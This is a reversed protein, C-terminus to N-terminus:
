INGEYTPRFAYHLMAEILETQAKNSKVYVNIRHLNNLMWEKVNSESVGQLVFRKDKCLSKALTSPASFGYHQSVFRATSKKNVKGIKLFECEKDKIYAFIYIASYGEPLKSPQKHPCGLDEIYYDDIREGLNRAVIEIYEMKSKIKTVLGENMVMPKNYVVKEFVVSEGLIVDTIKYGAEGWSKSYTHSTDNNSWWERYKRASPPLEFGLIGEIESYTLKIREKKHLNLYTTLPEYKTM